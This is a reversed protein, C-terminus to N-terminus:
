FINNIATTSNEDELVPTGEVNLTFANAEITETNLIVFNPTV